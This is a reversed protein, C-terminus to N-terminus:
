ENAAEVALKDAMYNGYWESYKDSDITPAKTHAKVHKYKIKFNCTLYYLKKILEENEIKKNDSKKWDNKEWNKAWETMSNVIYMSDTMIIIKRKNIKESSVLIEIGNVCALLECIQNTVKMNATEKISYSINRVDNDGFFVGVGGKRNGGKQNNPVAGDTFIIISSM